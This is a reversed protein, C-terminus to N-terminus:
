ICSIFTRSIFWKGEKALRNKFAMDYWVFFVTLRHVFKIKGCSRHSVCPFMSFKWIKFFFLQAKLSEEENNPDNFYKKNDNYVVIGNRTFFYDLPYFNCGYLTVYVTNEPRNFVREECKFAHRITRNDPCRIFPPALNTDGKNNSCLAALQTFVVHNPPKVILNSTELNGFLHNEGVNQRAIRCTLNQLSLQPFLQRLRRDLMPKGLKPCNCLHGVSRWGHNRTSAPMSLSVLLDLHASVGRAIQSFPHLLAANFNPACDPKPTFGM